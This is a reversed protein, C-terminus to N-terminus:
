KSGNQCSAKSQAALEPALDTFSSKQPSWPHTLSPFILESNMNKNQMEFMGYVGIDKQLEEYSHSTLM